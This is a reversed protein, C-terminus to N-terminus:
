GFLGGDGGLNLLDSATVGLLDDVVGSPGLLDGTATDGNSLVHKLALPDGDADFLDGTIGGDSHIDALVNDLRDEDASYILDEILGSDGTIDGTATDPDSLLAGLLLPDGGPDGLDDILGGEGVLNDRTDLLAGAPDSLLPM